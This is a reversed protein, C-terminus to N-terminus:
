PIMATRLAPPVTIACSGRLQSRESMGAAAIAVPADVLNERGFSDGIDQIDLEPLDIHRRAFREAVIRQSVGFAHGSHVSCRQFFRHGSASSRFRTALRRHDVIPV